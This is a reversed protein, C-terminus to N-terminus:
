RQNKKFNRVHKHTPLFFKEQIGSTWQCNIDEGIVSVSDNLIEQGPYLTIDSVVTAKSRFVFYLRLRQNVVTKNDVVVLEFFDVKSLIANRFSINFCSKM